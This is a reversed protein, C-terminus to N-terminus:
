MVLTCSGYLALLTVKESVNLLNGAPEKFVWLNGYSYAGHEILRVTSGKYLYKGFYTEKFATLIV